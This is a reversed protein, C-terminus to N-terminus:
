MRKCQQPTSQELQNRTDWLERFAWRRIWPRSLLCVAMEVTGNSWKEESCGATLSLACALRLPKRTRAGPETATFYRAWSCTCAPLDIFRECWLFRTETEDAFAYTRLSVYCGLLIRSENVTLVFGPLFHLYTCHLYGPIYREGILGM